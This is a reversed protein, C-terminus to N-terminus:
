STINKLVFNITDSSDSFYMENTPSVFFERSSLKKKVEEKAEDTYCFNMSCM